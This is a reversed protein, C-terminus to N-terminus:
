ISGLDRRFNQKTWHVHKQQILLIGGTELYCELNCQGKRRWGVGVGVPPTQKNWTVKGHTSWPERSLKWHWAASWSKCFVLTMQPVPPLCLVAPDNSMQEMCKCYYKDLIISRTSIWILSPSNLCIKESTMPWGGALPFVWSSMVHPREGPDAM